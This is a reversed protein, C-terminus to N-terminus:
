DPKKGDLFTNITSIEAQNNDDTKVTYNSYFSEVDAIQNHMEMNRRLYAPVTEFENNPDAANINFSLNRLKAIRETARRRLDETEDQLAPEEVTSMMISQTQQVIAEEEAAKHSDKVVLQMEIVPEDEQVPKHLPLPEETLNSEKITPKEEVYIQAPKALFGGSSLPRGNNSADKNISINQADVPESNSSPKQPVPITKALDFEIVTNQDPASSIEFYEPADDLKEV